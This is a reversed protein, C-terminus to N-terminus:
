DWSRRPQQAEELRGEAKKKSLEVPPDASGLRSM